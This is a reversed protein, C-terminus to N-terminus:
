TTTADVGPVQRLRDVVAPHGRESANRIDENGNAAADVGPLQLLREVVALHGYSCAGRFAHNNNATADVGPVLLLREVVALHGHKCAWSLERSKVKHPTEQVRRFMVLPHTSPADLLAPSADAARLLLDVDLAGGAEVASDFATWWNGFRHLLRELRLPPDLPVLARLDRSVARAGVREEPDLFSLVLLVLDDPLDGLSTVLALELALEM